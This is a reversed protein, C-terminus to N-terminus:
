QPSTSLYIFLSLIKHDAIRFAVISRLCILFSARELQFNDLGNDNWNRLQSKKHLVM